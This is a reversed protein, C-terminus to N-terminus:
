AGLRALFDSVLAGPAQMVDAVGPAVRALLARSDAGSYATLECVQESNADPAWLEGLSGAPTTGLQLLMTGTRGDSSWFCTRVELPSRSLRRVVDIWFAAAAAGGVGLPLRLALRTEPADEGRFPAVAEVITYVAQAPALEQEGGYLVSWAQRLPTSAAWVEYDRASLDAYHLTPHPVRALAAHMHAASAGAAPDLLVSAAGDLFEGFALPLVHPWPVRCPAAACVVLPYRRGVSDASPQMVGVVGEQVGAVGASRPPRYMFAWPAGTGYAEAWAPGRKGEAHALGQQIWEDFCEGARGASGVRLFDGMGPAKGFAALPPLHM